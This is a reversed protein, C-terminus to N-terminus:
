MWLNWLAQTCADEWVSSFCVHSSIFNPRNGIWFFFECIMTVGTSPLFGLALWRPHIFGQLDHSLSGILQYLGLAVKMWWHYVREERWTETRQKSVIAAVAYLASSGLLWTVFVLNGALWPVFYLCSKVFMISTIGSLCRLIWPNMASLDDQECVFWGFRRVLVDFFSELDSQVESWHQPCPSLKLMRLPGAFVVLCSISLGVIRM